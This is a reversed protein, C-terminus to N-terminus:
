CGKNPPPLDLRARIQAELPDFSPMSLAKNFHRVFEAGTDANGANRFHDSQRAARTAYRDVLSSVSKPWPAPPNYAKSAFRYEIRAYRATATRLEPLRRKVEALTLTDRGHFVLKVFRKGEAAVACGIRMYYKGARATSMENEQTAASPTSWGGLILLLGSVSAAIFARV